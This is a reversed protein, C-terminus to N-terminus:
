QECIKQALMTFAEEVGEATKASAKVVSWGASQCDAIAQDDIEWEAILDSKNLLFVFPIEGLHDAVRQRLTRATELTNLRTGDAVLLYGAAGRLYDMRVKQFEDEGALDWVILNIERDGLSIAKKDVKVGVTTLYQDSYISKIFRSVLSTKGVAFAGLLCIKKQITPQNM